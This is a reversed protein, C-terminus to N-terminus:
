EAAIQEADIAAEAIALFSEAKLSAGGILAGNVNPVSLLAKANDPKVSGGYLIRIDSGYALKEQLKSRIFGHMSKVDDISATKGTGIAWVPEYAIVVKNSDAGEFNANDIQAGVIDEAKGADRETETEGVCLIVKLGAAFAHETKEAILDDSEEHNQRRESHGLIVFECGADALMSASIDGTHAGNENVACDQAGVLVDSVSGLVSQVIGTYLYPPCILLEADLGLDPNADLGANIQETLEIAEGGYCSMKWNGAILKRM